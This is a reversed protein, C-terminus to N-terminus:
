AEHESGCSARWGRDRSMKFTLCFHFVQNYCEKNQGCRHSNTNYQGFFFNRGQASTPKVGFFSVFCFFIDEPQKLKTLLRKSNATIPREMFNTKPFRFIM